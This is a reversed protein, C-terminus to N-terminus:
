FLACMAKGQFSLGVAETRQLDSLVHPEPLSPPVSNDALTVGPTGTQMGAGVGHARAIDGSQYCDPLKRFLPKELVPVM